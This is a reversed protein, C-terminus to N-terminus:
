RYYRRRRQWRTNVDKRIGAVANYPATFEERKVKELERGLRDCRYELCEAHCLYHRKTCNLCSM